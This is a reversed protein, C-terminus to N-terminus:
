DAWPEGGIVFLAVAATMLAAAGVRRWLVIPPLKDELHVLGKAALLAGLGISMLGRSSQVINGLVLGATAFCIYLLVMAGLWTAAYPTAARWPEVRRSGYWPLLPLALLGCLVYAGAMSFVAAHLPGVPQMKEISLRISFDSHSYGLCAGLVALMALFPLSGGVYNLVFAATVAMGVAAWQTATLSDGLWLVTMAALMAIKIGLLPSIRSAQTYKLAAFLCAQAALYFVAQAVIWGFWQSAPPLDGPWLLPLLPLCVLGQMIHSFVLLRMFGHPRDHTYARSFVYAFSQTAAALLGFIIGLALM